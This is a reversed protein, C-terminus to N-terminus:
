RRDQELGAEGPKQPNGARFPGYRELSYVLAAGGLAIAAFTGNALPVPADLLIFAVLGLLIAALQMALVARTSDLGLDHLRHYTHDQAALLVPRGRRWRSYVVLVMDFIPVGLVLIPTFWTLEQPLGAQAPTYAIGIASLLFGLLQSGSDGLFTRAPLANYIFTGVTAGLIAASLTALGPQVSDITVLMFFASAIGALGLALGDMSDVFNFANTLGIVWLLTLTLDVWELRTARVRVGMLMLLACASIQALLKQYPRLSSRDDLLGWIAMWAGGGLIGLVERSIPPRLMLYAIGISCSLILGGALPTPVLHSKHPASGPIDMLQMRGAARILFPASAMAAVLSLLIFPFLDALRMM